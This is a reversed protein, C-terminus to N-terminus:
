HHSHSDHHHPDDVYVAGDALHVVRSGYADALVEDTLVVSPPGFAVLRGALLVVLDARRADSLEHTSVFVTRGSHREEDLADIILERSLVDVGTFPEDLLLIEAGQALGQAVLVRQRQGGSLEQLQRGAM